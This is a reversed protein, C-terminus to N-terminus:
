LEMNSMVLSGDDDSFYASTGDAFIVVPGLGSQTVRFYDHAGCVDENFPDSTLTLRYNGIAQLLEIISKM